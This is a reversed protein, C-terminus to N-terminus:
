GPRIEALRGIIVVYRFHGFARKGSDRGPKGHMNAADTDGDLVHRVVFGQVFKFDLGRPLQGTEVAADRQGLTAEFIDGTLWVEDHQIALRDQEFPDLEPSSRVPQNAVNQHMFDRMM